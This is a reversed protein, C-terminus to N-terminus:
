AHSIWPEGSVKDEGHDKKVTFYFCLLDDIFAVHHRMCAFREGIYVSKILAFELSKLIVM